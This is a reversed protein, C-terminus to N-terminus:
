APNQRLWALVDEANSGPPFVPYFVTEIVGDRIVLVMRKLLTIGAVRHVPLRLARGFSLGADSLLSFPLQLREAAERQYATDQTSLGFVRTGLRKFEAFHDRFGCSQTACGKAGPIRDWDDVLSPRGPVGTRPYLYLATRGELTALEVAGGATAALPIDPVRTGTLHRAGGDDEPVPWNSPTRSADEIM